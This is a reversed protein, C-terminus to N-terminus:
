LSPMPIDWNLSYIREQMELPVVSHNAPSKLQKLILDVAGPANCNNWELFHYLNHLLLMIRSNKRQTWISYALKIWLNSNMSKTVNYHGYILEQFSYLLQTHRAHSKDFNWHSNIMEVPDRYLYIFKVNLDHVNSLAKYIRTINYLLFNVHRLGANPFSYTNMIVDKEDAKILQVMKTMNGLRVAHRMKGGTISSSLGCSKTIEPMVAEVAHHGVGELGIFFLFTKTKTKTNENAECLHFCHIFLIIFHFLLCSLWLYKMKRSELSNNNNNHNLLFIFVLSCSM